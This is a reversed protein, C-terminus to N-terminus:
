ERRGALTEVREALWAVSHEHEPKMLVSRLVRASDADRGIGPHLATFAEAGVRLSSLFVPDEEDEMGAHLLADSAGDVDRMSALTPFYTVIDLTPELHLTMTESADLRAAFSRAARLCAALIPGLGSDRRLPLARLTLWLAGAAAGARSCELSIEGLHPEDSTFYTYPSDHRYLRAVSPDAFLVAGCGYPQLGHKHPDVVVSDCSAIAEFAPGGLLAFFGGYAADVHLRVGYRERLALAEHIDDVAGLGTTGPTLVITGVDGSRCAAEAADLDIRGDPHTPVAQSRVGLVQCMRGHTYHAEQSYVITTEPRLERAVWLAELNAITGSSTLHGIAGDPLGFMGALLRVVEFEMPSTAQSADLAHNNPNVIMAALYGAVAVPHPAKLMQGAYRPHYFPLNADMRAAYEDFLNEIGDPLHIDAVTGWRAEWDEVGGLVRDVLARRTSATDPM